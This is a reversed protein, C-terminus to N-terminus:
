QELFERLDALARAVLLRAALPSIALISAIEAHTMQEEFRLRIAIQRREALQDVASQVAAQTLVRYEPSPAAAEAEALATLQYRKRVATAKRDNLARNHVARFLYSKLSEVRLADRREWLDVFVDQVVDDASDRAGTIYFALRTLRDTYQVVVRAFADPNGDRLQASLMRDADRGTNHGTDRVDDRDVM